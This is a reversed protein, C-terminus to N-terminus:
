HIFSVTAVDPHLAFFAQVEKFKNPNCDCLMTRSDDERTHRTVHLERCSFAYPGLPREVDDGGGDKIEEAEPLSALLHLYEIGNNRWQTRYKFKFDKSTVWEFVRQSLVDFGDTQVYHPCIDVRKEGIYEILLINASVVQSDQWTVQVQLQHVPTMKVPTILAESLLIKGDDDGGNDRRGRPSPSWINAM